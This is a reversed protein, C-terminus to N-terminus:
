KIFSFHWKYHVSGFSLFHCRNGRCKNTNTRKNSNWHFPLKINTTAWVWVSACLKVPIFLKACMKWSSLLQLYDVGNRVSVKPNKDCKGDNLFLVILTSLACHVVTGNGNSQLTFRQQTHTCIYTYLTYVYHKWWWRWQQHQQQWSWWWLERESFYLLFSQM